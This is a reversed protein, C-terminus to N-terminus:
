EKVKTDVRAPRVLVSTLLLLRWAQWFELSPLNFLPTATTNWLLQVIWAVPLSIALWVALALVLATIIKM